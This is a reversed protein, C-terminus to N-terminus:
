AKRRLHIIPYITLIAAGMMFVGAFVQLRWWDRSGSRLDYIGGAIPSGILMGLGVWIWYMGSRAGIVALSPCFLPLFAGPLAVLFGSVMGWFISWVITGAITDVAIWCLLLISGLVLSVAITETPGFVAGAIGAIIRGVASAGNVIALLNLALNSSISPIRIETLLPLYLLPIYYATASLLSAVCLMMYPLDTFASVDFLRRVTTPKQQHGVLILYSILYLALMVFGITRITWAFGIQPVLYRFMIPYIIGGISSGCAMLGMARARSALNPLCASAAAVSPTFAIGAGLGVCIAQSLFLQYYKTSLSLMMLGFVQLLSGSLVLLRYLGYDYLPGTIIGGSLTIFACTTSIWSITSSPQGQLLSQEYYTQFVGCTLLLGWTNFFIIFTSLIQLWQRITLRSAPPNILANALKSRPSRRVLM